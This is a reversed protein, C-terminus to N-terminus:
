AVSEMVTIAALIEDDARAIAEAIAARQQASLSACRGKLVQVHLFAANDCVSEILESIPASPASAPATSNNFEDRSFEHLNSM